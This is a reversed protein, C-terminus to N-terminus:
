DRSAPKWSALRLVYVGAIIVIVAMSAPGLLEDVREFNRGLLWGAIALGATWVGTGITSWFLFRRQGMAILGAPISILSRITPVVRGVCVFAPGFRAFLAQGREVEYWDLTLWRGHRDILPKLRHLGLLRAAMFWLWNGAMAGATGAAVAGALSYQGQSAHYGAISMIVESPIPPFVTELLMLAAIGWYGGQEILSLIFDSVTFVCSENLRALRACLRLPRAIGAM